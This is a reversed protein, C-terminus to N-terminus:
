ILGLRLAKVVGATKNKVELKMLVNNIHFNVTRETIHVKDSVQASTAGDATWRLIEAERRTLQISPQPLLRQMLRGSLVEHAAQGLWSMQYANHQLEQASLPEHSRALTLLGAVGRGDHCSQSWGVRLGHGRADEWFPRAEQFVAESWVLPMVSRSGHAVTPDISLYDEQAYRQLWDPSYNSLIAVQPAAIPLPLRMGYSCFDFGLDKAARALCNSFAEDSRTELLAQLQDERWTNM